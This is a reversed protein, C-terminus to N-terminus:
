RKKRHRARARAARKAERAHIGNVTVVRDGAVVFTAGNSQVAKADHDSAAQAHRAIHKRIAQVDVGWVRELYCVLAHDTVDPRDSM